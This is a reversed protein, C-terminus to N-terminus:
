TRSAAGSKISGIYGREGLPYLTLTLPYLCMVDSHLTGKVGVKEGELPSPAMRHFDSLGIM